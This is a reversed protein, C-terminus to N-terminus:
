FFIKRVFLTLIGLYMLLMFLRHHEDKVVDKLKIGIVVGIISAIAVSLAYTMNLDLKDFSHNVLKYVLGTVSSFVVFFLGATAAKKTGFHFFGVLIPTLMISGGVGLMMAIIGIFFGIVFLIAPNLAKEEQSRQASSSAVKYIAYSVLALFIYELTRAALIETFYSGIVAGFIGGVGVWIGENLILKGKRYNMWSGYVSSFVMQMVSMAIAAKIDFGVTMLLPILIMGGGVGFFGSVTGVFIGILILEFIM